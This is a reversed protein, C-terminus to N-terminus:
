SELITKDTESKNNALFADLLVMKAQLEVLIAKMKHASAEAILQANQAAAASTQTAHVLKADNVNAMLESRRQKIDAMEARCERSKHEYSIAEGEKAKLQGNLDNIENILDNM